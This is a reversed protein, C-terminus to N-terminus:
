RRKADYVSRAIRIRGCGDENCLRSPLPNVRSRVTDVRIEDIDYAAGTPNLAGGFFYGVNTEKVATILAEGNILDSRQVVQIGNVWCTRAGDEAIDSTARQNQAEIYVWQNLPVVVNNSPTSSIGANIRTYVRVKGDNQVGVHFCRVGDHSLTIVTTTATGYSRMRLWFSMYVSEGHQPVIEPLARTCGSNAASTHACYLGVGRGNPAASEARTEVTHGATVSRSDYEGAGATPGVPWSHDIHLLPYHVSSM